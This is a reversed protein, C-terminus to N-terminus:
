NEVIIPQLLPKSMREALLRGLVDIPSGRAFPVIMTIPPAPYSQASAELSVAPFAAASAALALEPRISDLSERKGDSLHTERQQNSKPLRTSPSPMSRPCAGPPSRDRPFRHSTLGLVATIQTFHKRSVPRQAALGRPPLVDSSSFCASKKSASISTPGSRVSSSTM